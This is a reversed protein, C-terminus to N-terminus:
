RALPYARSHQRSPTATSSPCLDIGDRSSIHGPPGYFPSQRALHIAPFHPVPCQSPELRARLAKHPLDTATRRDEQLVDRSRIHGSASDPPTRPARHVCISAMACASTGQLGTSHRNGHWIFQLFTHAQASVPSQPGHTAPRGVEQFDDRSRIHGPTSDSPTPPARHVCISAMARALTGQLGTSHRNDHWIFQLFASPRAIFSQLFLM